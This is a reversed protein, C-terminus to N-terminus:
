LRPVVLPAGDPAVLVEADIGFAARLNAKTVIEAPRGVGILRGGGLLAMRDCSRAALSLDHSVVLASRGTAAFERVLTLVQIRHRLDLHATPEDLLLIAADQALARAILVLQREGGSLDLISRDALHDVGVRTMAVRAREIDAPSEYGFAGLHPSRGMLVVESARFPFSVQVDQPVVAIERALERRSLSEVDRGGVCVRGASAALVRSAIRLLTTKGAGNGGAVGLVEGARLDLDVERLIQRKGFAIAVGEFSLAVTVPESM